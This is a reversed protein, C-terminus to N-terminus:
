RANIEGGQIYIQQVNENVAKSEYYNISVNIGFTIFTVMFTAMIMRILCYHKKNKIVNLERNHIADNIFREAMKQELVKNAKDKEKLKVSNLVRMNQVAIDKIPFTPRDYGSYTSFFMFICIFFMITNILCFIFYLATYWCSAYDKIQTWLYILASGIVTLFTICTTIKNNLRDNFEIEKYYLDKYEELLNM